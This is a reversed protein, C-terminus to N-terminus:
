QNMFWSLRSSSNFFDYMLQLFFHVSVILLLAMRVKQVILCHGIGCAGGVRCPKQTWISWSGSAGGGTQVAISDFASGSVRCVCSARYGPAPPIRWIGAVCDWERPLVCELGLMVSLSIFCVCVRYM